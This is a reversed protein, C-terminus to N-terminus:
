PRNLCAPSRSAVIANTRTTPASISHMSAPESHNSCGSFSNYRFAICAAGAGNSFVRPSGGGGNSLINCTTASAGNTDSPALAGGDPNVTGATGEQSVPGIGAGQNTSVFTAVHATTADTVVGAVIVHGASPSTVDPCILPAISNVSDALDYEVPFTQAGDSSVALRLTQGTNSTSDGHGALYALYVVDANGSDVAVTACSLNGTHYAVPGTFTKGDDTSRFIDAELLPSSSSTQAMVGAYVHSGNAAFQHEFPVNLSNDTATIPVAAAAGVFATAVQIQASASATATAYTITVAPATPAVLPATYDGSSAIAGSATAPAVSWGGDGVGGTETFQLTSCTLVNATTPSVTLTGPASDTGADLQPTGSDPAQEAPSSSSSSCAAVAGSSAAVALVSLSLLPLRRM